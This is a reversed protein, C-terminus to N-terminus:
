KCHSSRVGKKGKYPGKLWPQRIILRYLRSATQIWNRLRTNGGGRWSPNLSRDVIYAHAASTHTVYTVAIVGSVSTARARRQWDHKSEQKGCRFSLEDPRARSIDDGSNAHVFAVYLNVRTCANPTCRMYGAAAVLASPFVGRTIDSFLCVSDCNLTADAASGRVIRRATDGSITIVSVHIYPWRKQKTM